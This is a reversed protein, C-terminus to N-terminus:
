ITGRRNYIESLFNRPIFFCALTIAYEKLNALSLNVKRMDYIAERRKGELLEHRVISHRYRNVFERISNKKKPPILQSPQIVNDYFHLFSWNRNVCGYKSIADSYEMRYVTTVQNIIAISYFAAIRYWLSTDEGIREGLVFGGAEQIIRKRICVSDTHILPKQRLEIQFIDDLVVYRQEGWNPCYYSGDRGEQRYCTAYVGCSPVAEILEQLAQLHNEEWLDDADLFCIYEETAKEIGVNRASSVGENEKQYLYIREDQLKKVIEASGDTSGDDVVILEFSSFTQNLVSFVSDLVTDKKNYLPMIVSFM